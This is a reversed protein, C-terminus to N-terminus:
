VQIDYSWQQLRRAGAPWATFTSGDGERGTVLPSGFDGHIRPLTFFGSRSSSAGRVDAAATRNIHTV